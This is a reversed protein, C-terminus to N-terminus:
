DIIVRLAKGQHTVNVFHYLLNVDRKVVDGNAKTYQQQLVGYSKVMIKTPVNTINKEETFLHFSVLFVLKRRAVAQHSAVVKIGLAMSSAVWQTANKIDQVLVNSVMVVLSDTIVKLVREQHTVNVCFLHHNAAVKVGPVLHFAVKRM